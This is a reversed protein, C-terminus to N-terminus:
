PPGSGCTFRLIKLAETIDFGVHMGFRRAIFYRVGTSKSYAKLISTPEIINDFQGVGCESIAKSGIKLVDYDVQECVLNLVEIKKLNKNAPCDPYGQSVPHRMLAAM